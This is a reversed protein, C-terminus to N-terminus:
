ATIPPRFKPPIIRFYWYRASTSAILQQTPTYTNIVTAVPLTQGLHGGHDYSCASECHVAEHSHNELHDSAAISFIPHPQELRLVDHIDTVIWTSVWFISFALFYLGLRKM